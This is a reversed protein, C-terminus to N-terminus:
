LNKNAIQIDTHPRSVERRHDGAIFGWGGGPSVELRPSDAPKM